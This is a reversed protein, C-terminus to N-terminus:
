QLARQFKVPLRKNKVHVKIGTDKGEEEGYKKGM